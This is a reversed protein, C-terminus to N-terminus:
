IPHFYERQIFDSNNEYLHGNRLYNHAPRKFGKDKLLEVIARRTTSVGPIEVYDEEFMVPLFVMNMPASPYVMLQCDDISPLQDVDISQLQDVDIIGDITDEDDDSNLNDNEIIFNHLRACAM